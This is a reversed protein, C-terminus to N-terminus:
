LEGGHHGKLKPGSFESHQIIGDKNRDEKEMIEDVMKEHEEKTTKTVNKHGYVRAQYKVYHSIEDRSLVNDGDRDLSTFLDMPAYSPTARRLDLLDVVFILTANAIFCIMLILLSIFFQTTPIIASLSHQFLAISEDPESNQFSIKDFM